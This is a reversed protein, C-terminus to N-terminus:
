GASQRRSRGPKREPPDHLTGDLLEALRCAAARHREASVSSSLLGMGYTLAAVLDVISREDVGAPLEDRAIADRVIKSHFSEHVANVKKFATRVEPYRLGDNLMSVTFASLDAEGSKARRSDDVIAACRDAFTEHESLIVEFRHTMQKAVETALTAVLRKKSDFYHYVAGSTLGAGAAISGLTAKSYGHEGFQKVAAGLIRTRTQEGNAAVPRGLAKPRGM